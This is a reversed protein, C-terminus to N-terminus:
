KRRVLEDVMTELRKTREDILNIQIPDMNKSGNHIGEISNRIANLVSVTEKLTALMAVDREKTAEDRLRVENHSQEVKQYVNRPLVESNNANIFTNMILVILIAILSPGTTKGNTLFSAWGGTGNTM